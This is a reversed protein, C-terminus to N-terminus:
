LRFDEILRALSALTMLNADGVPTTKADLMGALAERPLSRDAGTWWGAGPGQGM